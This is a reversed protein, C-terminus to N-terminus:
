LSHVTEYFVQWEMQQTLYHNNKATELGNHILKQMCDTDAHITEIKEALSECLSFVAQPLKSCDDIIPMWRVDHEDMLINDGNKALEPVQGVCTSVVPVGSAMSELLAKPGGEQRSAILYADLASFLGSVDQLTHCYIHVFPIGARKLERKVYGRAPGSLLVYLNPIRKKVLTLTAVLIDPGKIHKPINGEEWGNGDKQFSGVVFAESPIGLNERCTKKQLASAPQFLTIDVPIYIKQIKGEPFGANLLYDRMLENTVQIRSICRSLRICRKFLSLFDEGTDPFGHYYPFCVRLHRSNTEQIYGLARWREMFFLMDSRCIPANVKFPIGTQKLIGAHYRVDSDLSWGTGDGLINVRFCSRYKLISQVADFIRNM